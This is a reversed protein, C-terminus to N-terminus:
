DLKTLYIGHSTPTVNEFVGNKNNIAPKLFQRAVPNCNELLEEVTIWQCDAIEIPDMKIETTLAKMRCVTYIDTQHFLTSNLTLRQSAIYQFECKIGTEEFCERVAGDSLKKDKTPDFLGGPIKWPGPGSKFNEKIALIKGEDNFCMAGVGLYSFPAPPLSYTKQRLWRNLILMDGNKIRHMKFGNEMFFSLHNLDKGKLKLWISPSDEELWQELNKTICDIVIKPDPLDGDWKIIYDGFRRKKHVILSFESM